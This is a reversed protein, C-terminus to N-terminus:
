SPLSQIESHTGAPQLGGSVVPVRGQKMNKSTLSKGRKPKIKSGLNVVGWSKADPNDIFYHRFLAQGIQELTQNMQRNLEIKEDIAGLIDAIKKQEELEPLQVKIAALHNRNLTPVAAGANFSSFDISKLLYYIFRPHNGKFDKVWLTTNLPWFDADIYQGGGISGSRGIVVGPGKVKAACHTSAIGTSAVVPYSGAQRQSTPLDFGRQLTIADSLSILHTM